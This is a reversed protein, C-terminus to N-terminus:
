VHTMCENCAREMRKVLNKPYLEGLMEIMWHRRFHTLFTFHDTNYNNNYYICSLAQSQVHVLLM